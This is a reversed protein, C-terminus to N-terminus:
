LAGSWGSVIRAVSSGEIDPDELIGRVLQCALSRTRDGHNSVATLFESLVEETTVLVADSCDASHAAESWADGPVFIALWRFTDVFVRRM